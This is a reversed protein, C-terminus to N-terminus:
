QLAIAPRYLSCRFLVTDLYKFLPQPGEDELAIANGTIPM